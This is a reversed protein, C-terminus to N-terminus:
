GRESTTASPRSRLVSPTYPTRKPCLVSAITVPNPTVCCQRRPLPINAVSPGSRQVAQGLHPRRFGLDPLHAHRRHTNEDPSPLTREDDGPISAAAIPLDLTRVEAAPLDHVHLARRYVRLADVRRL